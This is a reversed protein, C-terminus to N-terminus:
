GIIGKVGKLIEAASRGDGGGHAGQEPLLEAKFEEFGMSSQYM